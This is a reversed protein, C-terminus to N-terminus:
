IKKVRVYVVTIVKKKMNEKSTCIGSSNGQVYVVTIVKKKM